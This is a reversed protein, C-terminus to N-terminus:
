SVELLGPAISYNGISLTEKQEGGIQLIMKLSDDEITVKGSWEIVNMEYYKESEYLLAMIGNVWTVLDM